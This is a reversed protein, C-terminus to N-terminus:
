GANWTTCPMKLTSRVMKGKNRGGRNGSALCLKRSVVSGIDVIGLVAHKGRGDNVCIAHDIDSRNVSLHVREAGIAIQQSSVLGIVGDVFIAGGDTGIAGQIKARGIAMDVGNGILFYGIYNYQDNYKYKRNNYIM